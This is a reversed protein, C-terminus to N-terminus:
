GQVVGREQAARPSDCTGRGGAPGLDGPRAGVRERRGEPLDAQEQLPTGVLVSQVVLM